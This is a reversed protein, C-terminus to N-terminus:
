FTRFARFLFAAMLHMIVVAFAGLSSADQPRVTRGIGRSRSRAAGTGADPLDGSERRLARRRRGLGMKPWHSGYVPM